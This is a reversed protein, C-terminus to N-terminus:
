VPWADTVSGKGVLHEAALPRVGDRASRAIWGISASEIFFEIFFEKYFPGEYTSPSPHGHGIVLAQDFVIQGDRGVRDLITEVVTTKGSATGGDRGGQMTM